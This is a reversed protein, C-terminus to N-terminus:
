PILQKDSLNFKQRLGNPYGSFDLLFSWAGNARALIGSGQKEGFQLQYTLVGDANVDMWEGQMSNIKFVKSLTGTKITIETASTQIEFSL